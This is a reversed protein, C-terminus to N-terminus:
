RHPTNGSAQDALARAAVGASYTHWADRASSAGPHDLGRCHLLEHEIVFRSSDPTIWVHCEGAAFHWEACALAVSYWPVYPACRNEVVTREVRHEVVRLLPWDAPPATHTDIFLSSCGSLTLLAAVAAAFASRRRKRLCHTNGNLGARSFDNNNFGAQAPSPAMFPAATIVALMAAKGFAQAVSHWMSRARDSKARDARIVASVYRPDLNLLEALNIAHDDTPFADGNRWLSFTAQTVKLIVAAKRDSGYLDRVATVLEITTRM